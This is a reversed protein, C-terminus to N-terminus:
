TQPSHLFTLTESDPRKTPRTLVTRTLKRRTEESSIVTVTCVGSIRHLALCPRAVQKRTKKETDWNREEILYIYKTPCGHGLTRVGMDLSPTAQPPESSM